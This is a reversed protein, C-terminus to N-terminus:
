EREDDDTRQDRGLAAWLAEEEERERPPPKAEGVGGGLRRLCCAAEEEVPPERHSLAGAENTMTLERSSARGAFSPPRCRSSGRGREKSSAVERQDPASAGEEREDDRREGTEGKCPPRSLKSRRERLAARLQLEAGKSSPRAQRGTPSPFPMARGEGEEEPLQPRELLVRCCAAAQFYSPAVLQEKFFGAEAQLLRSLRHLGAGEALAPQLGTYAPEKPWLLRSLRHLGAEKQGSSAPKQRSQGAEKQGFGAEEALAPKKKQGFAPKRQGFAPKKPRLLGAGKALLAPEKPWLFGAGKAM